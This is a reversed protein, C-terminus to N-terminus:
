KGLFLVDARERLGTSEIYFREAADWKMVWEMTDDRLRQRAM